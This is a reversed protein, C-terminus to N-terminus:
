DQILNRKQYPIHVTFTTGKNLESEVDITWNHSDIITKVVSLGIGSGQERRSSTGRYFLDFIHEKDEDSMGLGTDSISVDVTQENQVGLIRIEDNDKSYRFANILINGFARAVLNKDMHVYIDEDINIDYSINRKYVEATINANEAIAMIEPKLQEERLNRLWEANNMKVYDILDNIMNELSNARSHIISVSNKVQEPDTMIGDTIAECYGKIIAVPTRLDHSVGMLFKTRRNKADKISQRMKDLNESLSTIENIQRSKKPKEIVTDLEGEAIKQCSKELYSISRTINNSVRIILLIILIEFITVCTFIPIYFNKYSTKSAQLKNKTRYMVLISERRKFPNSREELSGFQYDYTSSTEIMYDSLEKKSLRTGSKLDPFNSIIIEGQYYMATQFNHPISELLSKLMSWQDESLDIDNSKKYQAYDKLLYRQPSTFYHYTPLTMMAIVPMAVICIILLNLQTKVKM